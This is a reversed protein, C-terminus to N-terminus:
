IRILRGRPSGDALDVLPLKLLMETLSGDLKQDRRQGAVLLM